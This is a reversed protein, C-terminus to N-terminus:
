LRIINKSKGHENVSSKFFLDRLLLIKMGHENVIFVFTTYQQYNCFSQLMKKMNTM